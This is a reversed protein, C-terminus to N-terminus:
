HMYPLRMCCALLFPKKSWNFTMFFSYNRKVYM